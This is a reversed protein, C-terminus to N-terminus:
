LRHWFYNCVKRKDCIEEANKYLDAIKRETDIRVSMLIIELSFFM